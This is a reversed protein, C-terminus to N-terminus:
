VVGKSVERHNKGAIHQTSADSLFYEKDQTSLWLNDKARNHRDHPPKGWKTPSVADPSLDHVMGSDLYDKNVLQAKELTPQKFQLYISSIYM